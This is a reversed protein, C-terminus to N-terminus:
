FTYCISFSSSRTFRNYGDDINELEIVGINLNIEIDLSESISFTSGVNIGADVDSVGNIEGNVALSPILGNVNDKVEKNLNNSLLYSFSPGINLSIRDNAKFKFTPELIIYELEYKNTEIGYTRITDNEFTRNIKTTTKFQSYSITSVLHWKENIQFDVFLGAKIDGIESETNPKEYGEEAEHIGFFIYNYQPFQLHSYNLGVKVGYHPVTLSQSSLNGISIIAIFLIFIKKM